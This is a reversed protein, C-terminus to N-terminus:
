RVASNRNPSRPQQLDLTFPKGPRVGVVEPPARRWTRGAGNGRLRREFEAPAGVSSIFPAALGSAEVDGNPMPVVWRPQLVKVLELSADPGHVLEFGPLGQGNVPTIVADVPALRSLEARDFEVHPEIYISPGGGPQTASLVYGNERSQWPPGVLAGSTARVSLGPLGRRSRPTIVALDVASESPPLRVTPLADLGLYPLAVRRSKSTLFTVNRFLHTLTRAASPPAIVPLHPDLQSLRRLTRDHAHDDLGQTILLADLPPLTELVGTSPLVRRSARYVDPIGFDLPGELVPDCLVTVGATTLLWGNIEALLGFLCVTTLEPSPPATPHRHRM